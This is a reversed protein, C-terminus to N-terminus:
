DDRWLDRIPAITYHGQEFCLLWSRCCVFIASYCPIEQLDAIRSLCITAAEHVDEISYIPVRWEDQILLWMRPFKSYNGSRLKGTKLRIFYEMAEAWQREAMSGVWPPGMRSGNAIEIKQEKTFIRKGPKYMQLFNSAEPFQRERIAQVEYWEEPVAEVCEVGIREAYYQLVFDPKDRHEVVLPYRILHTDAVTALFRAMMYREGHQPTRGEDFLPVTIDIGQLIAHLAQSTEATISLTPRSINTRNGM